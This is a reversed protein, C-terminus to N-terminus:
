SKEEEEASVKKLYLAEKRHVLKILYNSKKIALRFSEYACRHTKYENSNFTIKIIHADSNMFENLIAQLNHPEVRKGKRDDKPIHDVKEITM